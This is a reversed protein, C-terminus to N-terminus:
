PKPHDDQDSCSGLPMLFALPVPEAGQSPPPLPDSLLDTRADTLHSQLEPAPSSLPFSLLVGTTHISCKLLCDLSPHKNGLSSSGPGTPLCRLVDRRSTLHLHQYRGLGTLAQRVEPSPKPSQARPPQPLCSQCAPRPSFPKRASEWVSHTDLALSLAVALLM